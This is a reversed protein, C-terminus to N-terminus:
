PTSLRFQMRAQQEHAITGITTVAIVRAIVDNAPLPPRSERGAHRAIGFIPEQAAAGNGASRSKPREGAQQRDPRKGICRRRGIAM